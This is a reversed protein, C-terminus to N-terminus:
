TVNVLASLWHYGSARKVRDRDTWVWELKESVTGRLEDLKDFVQGALEGRLWKWLQEVPNLEPSYSPLKVIRVNEPLLVSKDGPHFGAGDYIVVHTSSPDSEGTERLFSATDALSVTPMLRVSGMAQGEVELMGYVYDWQYKQQTLRKIRVGPLAWVRRHTTHLGFRAEDQVWIRVPREAPIDLEHLKSLLEGDRFAQAKVPDQKKHSKRTVKAKAKFQGFYKYVTSLVVKVSHKKELEERLHRAHVWKGEALGEHIAQRQGDALPSKPGPKGEKRALLAEIGGERFAKIHKLVTSYALDRAQAIQEYTLTGELALRVIHLRELKWVTKESAILERVKDAHGHPDLEERHRPM